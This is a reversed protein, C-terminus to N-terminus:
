EDSMRLGDTEVDIEALSRRGSRYDLHQQIAIFNEELDKNERLVDLEQSQKFLDLSEDLRNTRMYAVGLNMATFTSHHMDYALKFYGLAEATTGGGRSAEMGMETAKKHGFKDSDSDDDLSPPLSHTAGGALRTQEIAANRANVEKMDRLPPYNSDGGRSKKPPSNNSSHGPRSYAPMSPNYEGKFSAAPSAPVETLHGMGGFSIGLMLVVFVSVVILIYKKPNAALEDAMKGVPDSNDEDTAADRSSSPKSSKSSKGM